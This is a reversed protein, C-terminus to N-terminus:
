IKIVMDIQFGHRCVLVNSVKDCSDWPSGWEPRRGDCYEKWEPRVVFDGPYFPRVVRGYLNPQWGAWVTALEDQVDGKCKIWSCM